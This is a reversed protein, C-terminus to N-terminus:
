SETVPADVQEAIAFRGCDEVLQLVVDEFQAGEGFRSLAPGGDIQLVVGRDAEVNGVAGLPFHFDEM